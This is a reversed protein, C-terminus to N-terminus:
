NFGPEPLSTEMRPSCMKLVDTSTVGFSRSFTVPFCRSLLFSVIEVECRAIPSVCQLSPTWFLARFVTEFLFLLVKKHYTIVLGGSNLCFHSFFLLLLLLLLLERFAFAGTLQLMYHPVVTEMSTIWKPRAAAVSFTSYSYVRWPVIM